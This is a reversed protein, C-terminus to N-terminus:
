NLSPLGFVDVFLGFTLVVILLDDELAPNITFGPQSYSKKLFAVTDPNFYGQRKIRDYSLLDEVWDIKKQLLFPSGQAVFGFKERAVIEAPLLRRAVSKLVSKETFGNLKFEPPIRTCFEVVHPDLFPFRAEVSNAMAMRDGHDAILHGALRLKFDLYSRKHVPHRALLREKNVIPFNHCAFQDFQSSLAESYVATKVEQFAYEDKEYSLDPDGWMKARIEDGLMTELNHKKQQQARRKDFRYGVYGAFLEDSGEGNLVVRVGADRTIKSLALSATNYTEKLPCESHYVVDRLRSAIETEDFDVEHHISQVVRSMLRQYKAECIRKDSFTVSFSHRPTDPSAGHIMAAILSSDLGGSLYFGVPVDAQLRYRVSSQLLNGLIEAYHTEPECEGLEGARPYDLDWYESQATHGNKVTLWNGSPLSHIGRFMTRPTIVGPLSLVQDLATLDIEHPVMPHQLIAKIESGWILIDDIISYFLPCIGFQDRALSLSRAKRDYIALAFQGNLKSLFEPGEEEYLHVLVEVDTGSRFVHGKQLLQERLERYNYIEGNCTLVLSGDENFIPQQGRELDIISLRRFGIAVSKEVFRGGSDPGRHVLADTMRSLVAEDVPRENRLDLFGAIGCM